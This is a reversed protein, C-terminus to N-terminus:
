SWLAAEFFDGGILNPSEKWHGGIMAISNVAVATM